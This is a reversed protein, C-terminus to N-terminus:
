KLCTIRGVSTKSSTDNVKFYRFQDCDLQFQFYRTLFAILMKFNLKRFFFETQPQANECSNCM